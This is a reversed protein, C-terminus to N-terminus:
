RGAPAPLDPRPRQVRDIVLYEAPGTTRTLRLGLAELAQFITQDRSTAAPRAREAAPVVDVARSIGIPGPTQADRTYEFVLMFEGTVGTQDLVHLDMMDSLMAAVAQLTMGAFEMRRDPRPSSELVSEFDEGAMMRELQAIPLTHRFSGCRPKALSPITRPMDPVPTSCDGPKPAAVKLGGPAVTLAYMPKQETERRLKLQFRDELMARLARNMPPPFKMLNGREPSIVAVPATVEIAFRDRYMWSPGGRITQQLALDDNSEGLRGGPVPAEHKNLLPAGRGAYAQDVLTSLTVCAWYARGPSTQALNPGAGRGTSAAAVDRCPKISVVDFKEGTASADQSAAVIRLPSLAMVLCACAVVSASVWIAGARGRHQAGDLVARVRTALDRRDAMALQPRSSGTSLRGALVLLQDAYATAESERLVADDCAREAELGLRRWAVWVIPHFWYGAAVVRALCHTMWDGRRVHELEHVIARRLDERTWSDADMPLVIAPQLVGCTMPGPVAEHRLVDVRRRARGGPTVAVAAVLGDRWPLASRRLSRVQWIGVIVPVLCVVAGAIWAGALLVSLPPWSSDPGSAPPPATVDRSAPALPEMPLPEGDLPAIVAHVAAPVEVDVPPAVMSAFPLILVVGFAAALLVHRVAARSRRLAGTAVLATTLVVTIELLLWTVSM